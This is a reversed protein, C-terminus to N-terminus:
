QAQLYLALARIQEPALHGIAVHMVLSRRQKSQIVRMQRTLYIASQGALRPVVQQGRANEGHCLTCSPVGHGPDGLEYLRRGRNIREPDGGHGKPPPLEAYRRALAEITPDDVAVSMGLMGDHSEPENRRTRFAKIQEILYESPQAALSPYAPTASRGDAGHCRACVHEAINRAGAAAISGPEAARLASVALAAALAAAVVIARIALTRGDHVPIADNPRMSWKEVSAARSHAQGADIFREARTPKVETLVAGHAVRSARNM